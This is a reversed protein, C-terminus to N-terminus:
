LYQLVATQRPTDAQLALTDGEYVRVDRCLALFADLTDLVDFGFADSRYHMPIVVRPALADAVQRATRADITYHGGVPIAIADVPRIAAIQGSSLLSGLDGLHSFRLGEAELVHITNMGRKTGGSDDHASEVRTISFPSPATASRLTVTEPACHDAHGHSSLVEHGDTRLPRLGPVKGDAYPDLVIVYGAAEVRFCAHGLWQINM